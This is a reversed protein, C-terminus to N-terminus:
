AVGQSRIWADVEARVFRFTRPGLQHCPLGRSEMERLTEVTVGLEKAMQKRDMYEPRSFEVARQVAEDIVAYLDHRVTRDDSM